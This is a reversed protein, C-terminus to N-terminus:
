SNHIASYEYGVICIDDVQELEGKWENLASYLMSKRNPIKESQISLLFKRFAKYKFKKGGSNRIEQTKGGFQDAFGDSFLYVTDGEKLQITHNTFSEEEIAHVGIPMKDGKFEYLKFDDNSQVSESGNKPSGSKSNRILYMPNNAGAFQLENNDKNIACFAIDMGDKISKNRDTKTQDDGQQNLAQIIKSRLENLVHNANIINEQNVIESLFAIGMMSMFAGPVGHGTCDAACILDWKNIRNIYYFDGSVIDRPLFFVMTSPFYRLLSEENRIVASQIRKAYHISDTIESHIFSIHDKQKQIENKQKELLRNAKRKQSYLRLLMLIFFFVLILGIGLSYILLKQQQIESEKLKKDKSLIAIEQEKKETEYLTQIRAINEKSKEDNLSDYYFKYMRHMKLAEEFNNLSDMTISIEKYSDRIYEAMNIEQAKDLVLNLYILSKEYDGMNRYNQGIAFLNNVIEFKSQIEESVKLAKMYFENAKNYSGLKHFVTGINNNTAAIGLKYNIRKNITLAENLNALAEKIAGKKSYIIGINSLFRAIEYENNQKKALDLGQFYLDLADNLSDQEEYIYAMNNLCSIIGTKFDLSDFVQLSKQYADIAKDHRGLVRYINGINSQTSAAGKMDGISRKIVISRNYYENALGFNGMNFEVAGLNNLSKALNEFDENEDRIEIAKLYSRVANEYDGLKNYVKGLEHYIDSIKNNTNYTKSLGLAHKFEHLAQDYNNKIYLVKGNQLYSLIILEKSHLDEALNKSKIAFESAKEIENQKRYEESLEIYVKHLQENRLTKTLRTLSDTNTACFTTQLTSIFITFCFLIRIAM